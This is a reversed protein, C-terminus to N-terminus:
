RGRLIRFLKRLPATLRWSRSHLILYIQQKLMRTENEKMKLVEVLSSVNLADLNKQNFTLKNNAVELRRHAGSLEIHLSDSISLRNQSKVRLVFLAEPSTTMALMAYNKEAFYFAVQIVLSWFEYNGVHWHLNHGKRLAEDQVFNLYEDKSLSNKDERWGLRFSYIHECSEFEAQNREFLYDDLIHRFPTQVRRSDNLCRDPLPLGVVLIGDDRVYSIWEILSKIPDECHELVNHAILFDSGSPFIKKVDDLLNLEYPLGQGEGFFHEVFEREYKDFYRCHTGEPLAQPHAGAGIEMGNGSLFQRSVTYRINRIEDLSYPILTM